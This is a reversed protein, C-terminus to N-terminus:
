LCSAQAVNVFQHNVAITVSEGTTSNFTVSNYGFAIDKLETFDATIKAIGQIFKISTPHEPSLECATPFGAENIMNPETSAKLGDAFYSCTEELGICRNRGNWPSGHRGKNSIWFVSGPLQAADKLSFWLYGQEPFMAVTWAPNESPRKFLQVLDTYGLRQPFSTCDAAPTNKMMVPVDSLDTFKENIALAQYEGNAPDSFIAPNTMGFEFDSVALKMSHEKEPIVLNCHHGIPMAGSFGELLHTTYIVNQGDYLEIKKTVKGQDVATQMELTLTTVAGNKTQEVFKWPSFSVEGHPAHQKGNVAEANGGFPMCFFDGRLPALVAAGFEKINENQWPSIYYPQISKKTDIDFNVPATHGGLTTIFMEVKDNSVKWGPQSNDTCKCQM